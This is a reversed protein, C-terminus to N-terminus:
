LCFQSRKSPEPKPKPQPSPSAFWNPATPWFSAPEPRTREQAATSRRMLLEEVGADELHPLDSPLDVVAEGDEEFDDCMATVDCTKHRGGGGGGKNTRAGAGLFPNLPKHAARARCVSIEDYRSDQTDRDVDLRAEQRALRMQGLAKAKSLDLSPVSSPRAPETDRLFEATSPPLRACAPQKGIRPATLGSLTVPPRPFADPRLLDTRYVPPRFVEDKRTVTEEGGSSSESLASTSFDSTLGAFPLVAAPMEEFEPLAEVEADSPPQPESCVSPSRSERREKSEGPLREDSFGNAPALQLIGDEIERQQVSPSGMELWAEEAKVHAAEAQQRQQAAEALVNGVSSPSALRRLLVSRPSLAEERALTDLPPEPSAERSSVSPSTPGPSADRVHLAEGEGSGCPLQTKAPARTSVNFANEVAVPSMICASRHEDM